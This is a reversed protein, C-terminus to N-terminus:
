WIEFTRNIRVAEQSSEPTLEQIRKSSCLWVLSYIKEKESRKDKTGFYMMDCPLKCQLCNGFLTRLTPNSNYM